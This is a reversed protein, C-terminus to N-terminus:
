PQDEAQATDMGDMTDMNDVDGTMNVDGSQQVQLDEGRATGTLTQQENVATEQIGVEERVRAQKQLEAREEYVPVRIVEDQM